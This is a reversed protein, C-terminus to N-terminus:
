PSAYSELYGCSTCRYATISLRRKGKMKVGGTWSKEPAGELWSGVLIAGYSMDPIFGEEM